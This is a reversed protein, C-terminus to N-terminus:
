FISLTRKRDVWVALALVVLIGIAAIWWKTTSKPSRLVTKHDSETRVNKVQEDSAQATKREHVEVLVGGRGSSPITVPISDSLSIARGPLAPLDTADGWWEIRITKDIDELQGVTSHLQALTDAESSSQVLQKKPSCSTVLLLLLCGAMSLGSVVRM